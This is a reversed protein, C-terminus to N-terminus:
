REACIVRQRGDFDPIIGTVRFGAGALIESVAAAQTPGIEFMLCGGPMMLPGVGAAIARYAGFGDGGPTLAIRPEHERVERSLAAMEDEAIYPPNSVILDFQGDIGDTWDALLFEARSAVGFTKANAGARALAPPSIDTGIGTADDWEALLTILLCGSGTGLDLVRRFPGRRLAEAILIESEPRPDLVEPGVGFERGWFSRSGTIHSMPEGAIRRAIARAFRAQEEAEATEDLASILEESRFGGAWRLALRAERAPDDVGATALQRSAQRLLEARKMAGTMSNPRGQGGARRGEHWKRLGSQRIRRQLRM